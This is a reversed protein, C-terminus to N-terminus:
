RASQNRDYEAFRKLVSNRIKPDDWQGAEKMADIRAQSVFIQQSRGASPGKSARTVGSPPTRRGTSKRETVLDGDDQASNLRSELEQWYAATSPDYGDAAVQADIERTVQTADADKGYWPNRSQFRQTNERVIRLKEEQSVGPRVTQAETTLGQRAATLEAHERAAADRIRQLRVHAEGEGKSVAEAMLEEAESYRRQADLLREEIAWVDRRTGGDRLKAVEAKLEGLEKRSQALERESRAQAAKQIMRRYAPTGKKPPGKPRDLEAATTSDEDDDESRTQAGAAAADKTRATQEGADDDGVEITVLEGEAEPTAKDDDIDDKETLTDTAM